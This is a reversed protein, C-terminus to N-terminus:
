STFADTGTLNNKSNINALVKRYVEEGNSVKRPIGNLRMTKTAIDYSVSPTYTGALENVNMDALLTDKLSGSTPIEATGNSGYLFL